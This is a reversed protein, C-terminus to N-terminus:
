PSRRSESSLLISAPRACYSGLCSGDRCVVKIRARSACWRTPVRWDSGARRPVAPCRLTGRRARGNSWGSAGASGPRVDDASRSASDTKSSWSPVRSPTISLVFSISTSWNPAISASSDWRGLRLELAALREDLLYTKGRLTFGTYKDGACIRPIERADFFFASGRARATVRPVEDGATLRDVMAQLKAPDLGARKKARHLAEELREQEIPKLLYDVAEAAFADVAFEAYATTFIVPPLGTRSRAVSLGDLGPMRIDLLVVDPALAEIKDLAEEGDRAEGALEVGPIRGLMRVLASAWHARRRRGPDADDHWPRVRRPPVVIRVRYGGLSGGTDRRLSADSGYSLRLREEIDTLATGSGKRPSGGAGLGDDEIEIHLRGDQAAARVEIRGPGRRPSIGHNVANEVVPHLLLAPVPWDLVSEDVAVSWQLRDGFRLGEVELYTRVARVEDGM